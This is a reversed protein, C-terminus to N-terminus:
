QKGRGNLIFEVLQKTSYAVGRLQSITNVAERIAAVNNDSMEKVAQRYERGGDRVSILHDKKEQNLEDVLKDERKRGQVYVYATVGWSLVALFYGVGQRGFEAVDNPNM